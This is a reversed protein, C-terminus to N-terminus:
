KFLDRWFHGPKPQVGWIRNLTIQLQGFVSSAGVLLILVSIINAAFGYGSTRISHIASTIATAANGGVLNAIQYHIYALSDGKYVVGVISLAIILLPALSFATYYALAAGWELANRRSWAMVAKRLLRWVTTM